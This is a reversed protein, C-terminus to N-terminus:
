GHNAELDRRAALQEPTAEEATLEAPEEEDETGALKRYAQKAEEETAAEIEESGEDPYETEWVLWTKDEDM